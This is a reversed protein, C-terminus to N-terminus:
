IYARLSTHRFRPDLAFREGQSGSALVVIRYCTRVFVLGFSVATAILWKKVNKVDDHSASEKATVNRSRPFPTAARNKKARWVLEIFVELYVLMALIQLALGALMVYSGLDQTATKESFSFVGAGAGQLGLAVVTSGTLALGALTPTFRCFQPGLWKILRTM